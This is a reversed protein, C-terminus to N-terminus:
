LFCPFFGAKRVPGVLWVNRRVQQPVALPLRGSTGRTFPPLVNGERGRKSRPGWPARSSSPFGQPGPSLCHKVGRSGQGPPRWYKWICLQPQWCPSSLKRQGWQRLQAQALRCAAVSLAAGGEGLARGACEGWRSGCGAELILLVWSQQRSAPRPSRAHLM